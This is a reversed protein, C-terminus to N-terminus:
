HCGACSSRSCTSCNSSSATVTGDAGKSRFAFGSMLKRVNVSDCHPCPPQAGVRVLREFKKQCDDCIFEYIPM